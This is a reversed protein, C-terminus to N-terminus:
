NSIFKYVAGLYDVVYLEGSSDEGFSSIFLPVDRSHKKLEPRLNKFKTPKGNKLKFSWIRGTCYDGFIYTGWLDPNNNGRYVYGGTVSCGTAEREDMGILIKMYSANNPYEFVPMILGTTDCFEEPDYCHNGEMTRWGFNAGLSEDWTLWNIEEWLNQGVDGIILDSTERDFSFRWPNRLGYCFIESRKGTDNFFPNDPPITYPDGMDVNIRLIAGFLTKLDQSNNYPDGWKGGDGFGIYLMGDKPGFALHGGNHNGFPQPIGLIMKETGEDAINPNDTVSFRSVISSDNKNVYNLYFYGNTKYDPHFALGLLGEESGPTLSGHVRDSIDLFPTKLTEGNTIIHIRGKQNLVFLRDTENSPQTIYLAKAPVDAVKIVAIDNASLLTGLVM